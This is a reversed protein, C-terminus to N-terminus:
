KKLYESLYLELSYLKQAMKSRRREFIIGLIAYFIVFFVYLLIGFSFIEDIFNGSKILYSAQNMKVAVKSNEFATFVFTDSGMDKFLAISAMVLAIGAMVLNAYDTPKSGNSYEFIWVKAEIMIEEYDYSQPNTHTKFLGKFAKGEQLEKILHEIKYKLFSERQCENDNNLNKESNNSVSEISDMEVIVDEKINKTIKLKFESKYNEM